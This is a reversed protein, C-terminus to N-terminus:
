TALPIFLIHSMLFTSCPLLIFSPFYSMFFFFLSCSALISLCKEISLSIIFFVCFPQLLLKAQKGEDLRIFEYFLGLMSM